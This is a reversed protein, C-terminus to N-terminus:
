DDIVEGDIVRATDSRRELDKAELQELRALGNGGFLEVLKEQTAGIQRLARLEELAEQDANVHKHTVAISHETKLPDTRQIVADLARFHHPSAPDRVLKFLAAVAEPAGIRIMRRSEEGIAAVVKPNHLLDSGARSAHALIQSTKRYGARRAARSPAGYPQIACEAIYHLLFQRMMKTLSQMAPGYEAWEREPAPIVRRDVANHGRWGGSGPGGM